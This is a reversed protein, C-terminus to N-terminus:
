ARGRTAAASQPEVGMNQAVIKDKLLQPIEPTDKLAILSTTTPHFRPHTQLVAIEATRYLAGAEERTFYRKDLSDNNQHDYREKLLAQRQGRVTHRYEPLIHSTFPEERTDPSRDIIKPALSVHDEPKPAFQRAISDYTYSATQRALKDFAPLNSEMQGVQEFLMPLRRESRRIAEVIEHAPALEMRTLPSAKSNRQLYRHGEVCELTKVFPHLFNGQSAEETQDYIALLHKSLDSQPLKLEDRIDRIEHRMVAIRELTTEKSLAIARLEDITAQFAEPKGRSLHYNALDCAFSFLEREFNNKAIGINKQEEPSMMFIESATTLEMVIEGMDHVWAGLMADKRLQDIAPPMREPFARRTVDDIIGMVQKSHAATSDAVIEHLHPMGAFRRVRSLSHDMMSLVRVTKDDFGLNFGKNMSQNFLLWERMNMPKASSGTHTYIFAKQKSPQKPFHDVDFHLRESETAPTTLDHNTNHSAAAFHQDFTEQHM